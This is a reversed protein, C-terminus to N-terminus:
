SGSLKDRAKSIAEDVKDVLGKEEESRRAEQREGETAEEQEGRVPRALQQEHVPRALPQEDEPTRNEESM